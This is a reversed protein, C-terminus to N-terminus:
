GYKIDGFIACQIFVDGTIADGTQALIDKLHHPYKEGLIRLSRRLGERDLRHTGKEDGYEERVDWAVGDLIRYFPPTAHRDDASVDFRLKDVRRINRCWPTMSGGEVGSILTDAVVQAPVEVEALLERRSRERAAVQAVKTALEGLARAEAEYMSAYGPQDCAAARACSEQAHFVAANLLEVDAGTFTPADKM